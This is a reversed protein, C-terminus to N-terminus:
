GMDFFYGVHTLNKTDELVEVQYDLLQIKESM